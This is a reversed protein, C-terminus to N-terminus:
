KVDFSIELDGIVVFDYAQKVKSPTGKLIIALKDEKNELMKSFGKGGVDVILENNKDGNKLNEIYDKLVQKSEKSQLPMEDEQRKKKLVKELWLLSSGGRVSLTIRKGEYDKPITFKIIREFEEGRYPKMKVLVPVEDGAHYPRKPVSIEKLETVRLDETVKVDVRIRHIDLADFKNLSLNGLIDFLENDLNKLLKMTAFYMNDRHIQYKEGKENLADMDFNLQATGGGVRNSALTLCNYVAADVLEPLLLEDEVLNVTVTKHEGRDFDGVTVILPISRPTKGIEGAVGSARDQVIQGAVQGIQGVKYSSMQNPVTGMIWVKNMFFNATGRKLFPHGFALLKGDDGVWTVTGLAGLTIDGNILSVGVSSGPQFDGVHVDGAGGPVADLEYPLLREKLHALGEETFGGASLATGKPLWASSYHVEDVLDLMQHIPTLFCYHPDNFSRGFAVAGVLRGDVYVPSGSMGQAVGGAKEIVDGSLKVFITEGTAESGQVGLIEVNFDEITDGQIVTKGIGRMGARLDGIPMLSVNAQAVNALGALALICSCVVGSFKM